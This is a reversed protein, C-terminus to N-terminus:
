AASRGTVAVRWEGAKKPSPLATRLGLENINIGEGRWPRYLLLGDKMVESPEDFAAALQGQQGLDVHGRDARHPRRSPHCNRGSRDGRVPGPSYDM